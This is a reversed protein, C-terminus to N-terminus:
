GHAFVDSAGPDFATVNYRSSAPRNGSSSSSPTPPPAYAHVAHSPIDPASSGTIWFSITSRSRYAVATSDPLRLKSPRIWGYALCAKRADGGSTTAYAIAPVIRKSMSFSTSPISASPWATVSFSMQGDSASISAITADLTFGSFNRLTYSGINATETSVPSFVVGSSSQRGILVYMRRGGYQSPASAPSRESLPMRGSATRPSLM